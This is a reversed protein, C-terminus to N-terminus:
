PKVWEAVHAVVERETPDLQDWADKQTLDFAAGTHFCCGVSGAAKATRFSAEFESVPWGGPPTTSHGNRGPEQHHIPIGPIAKALAQANPGEAAGWGSSRKFHPLLIEGKVDRFLNQYDKPMGDVSFSCSAGVVCTLPVSRATDMLEKFRAPSTHGTDPSGHGGAGRVEAENDLDVIRLAPHQGWRTLVNRVATKHATIDYGEGSKQRADYHSTEFTFDVSLGLARAHEMAADLKDVQAGILSGKRDVVRSDPSRDWDVWVRVHAFGAARIRDLDRHIRDPPAGLLGYYSFAATFTGKTFQKALPPATPFSGPDVPPPQAPDGPGAPPKKPKKTTPPTTTPAVIPVDQAAAGDTVLLPAAWFGPADAAANAPHVDLAYEGPPLGGPIDFFGTGRRDGPRLLDVPQGVLMTTRGDIPGAIIGAHARVGVTATWGRVPSLRYVFARGPVPEGRPDVVRGFARVPAAGGAQILDLIAAAEADGLNKSRVRVALTLAVDAVPQSSKSLDIELPRTQAAARALDAYTAGPLVKLLANWHDVALPPRVGSEVESVYSNHLGLAKAIDRQSLRAAKRQARLYKGFANAPM